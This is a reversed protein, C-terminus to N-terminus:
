KSMLLEREGLPQLPRANMGQQARLAVLSSEHTRLPTAMVYWGVSETCPPTTLSGHYHFVDRNPPLLGGPHFTLSETVGEEMPLLDTIARVQGLDGPAGADLMVGVVVYRGDGGDHVLHVEAPARGGNVAHEAPTHFHFQLLPFVGEGIRLHSGPECAVHVTHGNDTVEVAVPQYEFFVGSLTVPTGGTLDIPSQKSGSCDAFGTDLTAWSEPGRDGEYDWHTSHDGGASGSACAAGILAATAVAAFLSISSRM